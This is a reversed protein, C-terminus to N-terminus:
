RYPALWGSSYSVEWKKRGNEERVKKEKTGKGGRGDKNRGETDVESPGDVLRCKGRQVPRRKRPIDERAPLPIRGHCGEQLPTVVSEQRGLGKITCQGRSVVSFVRGKKDRLMRSFSRPIKDLFILIEYLM